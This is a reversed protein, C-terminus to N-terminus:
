SHGGLKWHRNVAYVGLLVLFSFILLSMSIQHALGFELSEVAEYIAISIVQTEGPLNGGVMLVVGFEGVTHAFGLISAVMIGQRAQPLIIRWFTKRRSAGLSHAAEVTEYDLQEFAVHIPQLVFPLSYLVSAIVLATFTFALTQGFLNMWLQGLMGQEGFSILLYFGLVTPPLVLPLACVSEVILASWHRSRALWWALPIAIILLIVTTIFALKLTLSFALVVSESM